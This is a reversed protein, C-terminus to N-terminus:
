ATSINRSPHENEQYGSKEGTGFSKGPPKGPPKRPSKGPSKGGRKGGRIKDSSMCIFYNNQHFIILKKLPSTPNKGLLLRKKERSKMAALRRKQKEQGLKTPSLVNVNALHCVRNIVDNLM